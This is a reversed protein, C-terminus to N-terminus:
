RSSGAERDPDSWFSDVADLLSLPDGTHDFWTIRPDRRFWRIQRVAFQRSRTEIMDVAEALSCEGRLHAALEGYGLAQSATRSLQWRRELGSVEDLFGEALQAHVREHISLALLERDVRLGILVFPTGPYADLGPGFSSFPRGSGETVELARVIRRRNDQEMRAAAVPDLRVLRQHLVRTDPESQIRAAIEPFRGPLELQDVVAQVYLGTGGVLIARASRREIDDLVDRVATVFEAVSFEQDPDVVDILHHPVQDQEVQSPTTTGIDMGRYVAMSDMSILEVEDGLGRRRMALAMALSSKGSATPGVLM